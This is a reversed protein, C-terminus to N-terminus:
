QAATAKPPLDGGRRLGKRFEGATRHDILGIDDRCGFFSREIRLEERQLLLGPCWNTTAVTLSRSPLSM